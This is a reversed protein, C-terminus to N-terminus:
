FMASGGNVHFAQGTIFAAEASALFMCAWAVEDPEGLRKVPVTWALRIPDWNPHHEASRSTKIIGPVVTNVTIGYEAVELALAKTLGHLAAKSAVTHARNAQGVFGDLGSMHIVRGRRARRMDPILLKALVFSARLNTDLVLRWKELDIEDLSERFRLGVNSIYIQVPGFDERLAEVVETLRAADAVDAMYAKARVGHGSAERVVSEAEAQNKRVVIAVNAGAKAFELACARGINRGAGTILVNDNAFNFRINM